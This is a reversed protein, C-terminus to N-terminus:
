HSQKHGNSLSQKGATMIMGFIAFDDRSDDITTKAPEGTTVVRYLEKLETTYADEYTKRIMTEKYAGDVNERIHLTTPLGKIYPSDFEVRM